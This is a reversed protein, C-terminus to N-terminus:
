AIHRKQIGAFWLYVARVFLAILFLVIFYVFFNLGHLAAIKMRVYLPFVVSCLFGMSAASGFIYGKWTSTYQQVLMLAIPCLTTSAIFIEPQLPTLRVLFEALGFLSFVVMNNLIYAVAALSGLLLLQVVRKKDLLLIWAAYVVALVGAEVFWQWSFLEHNLWHQFYADHLAKMQEYM